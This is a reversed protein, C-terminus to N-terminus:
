QLTGKTTAEARELDLRRLAVAEPMKVLLQQKRDLKQRERRAKTEASPRKEEFAQKIAANLLKEDLGFDKYGKRITSAYFESPPFIGKTDRMLYMLTSRPRGCYKLVVGTEKYYGGGEYRDLADEDAKNIAWLGCAVKDGPSYVVDAAGRFVLKADTLYFKGLPRATPCRMRMQRKCLNSGYAIYLKTM